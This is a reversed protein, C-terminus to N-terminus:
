PKTCPKIAPGTDVLPCKMVRVDDIVDLRNVDYWQTDHLTGDEKLGPHVIVQRCGYLDISVSTVIGELGTVKDKVTMGLLECLNSIVNEM